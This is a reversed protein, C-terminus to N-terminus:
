AAKEHVRLGRALLWLGLVLEFVVMPLDYLWVNVVQDFQPVALYAFACIACWISSLIGLIALARPIYKSKFWLVSYITSALAWAPLGVYYANNGYVAQLKALGQLQGASFALLHTPDGLVQLVNLMTFAMIAWAVAFVLRFFTAVLAVSRNVPKLVVYFLSLVALSDLVYFVNVAINFRYQGLHATIDSVPYHLAILYNVPLLIVLGIFLAAGAVRAAISHSTDVTGTQIM